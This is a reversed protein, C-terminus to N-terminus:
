WHKQRSLPYAGDCSYLPRWAAIVQNGDVIRRSQQHAFDKRRDAIREHVHAVAKKRKKWAPSWKEQRSLRRSVQALANEDKRFFRPNAIQEGTSLTAFSALGVEIGVQPAVVPLPQTEVECSFSVFWKGTATRRVCCTKVTGELPRHIIAKVHGIKSLFVRKDGEVKHGSGPYCFSDYWGYGRFRPYGPKEGAKM